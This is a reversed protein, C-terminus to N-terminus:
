QRSVRILVILLKFSHGLFFHWRIISFRDLIYTSSSFPSEQFTNFYTIQFNQLFSPYFPLIAAYDSILSPTEEESLNVQRLCFLLYRYIQIFFLVYTVLSCFYRIMRLAIKDIVQYNCLLILSNCTNTQFLTHM